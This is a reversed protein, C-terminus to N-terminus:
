TKSPFVPYCNVFLLYFEVSKASLQQEPKGDMIIGLERMNLEICNLLLCFSFCFFSSLPGSWSSKANLGACFLETRQRGRYTLVLQSLWHGVFLNCLCCNLLSLSGKVQCWHLSRHWFDSTAQFAHSSVSCSSGGGSHFGAAGFLDLPLCIWFLYSVAFEEGPTHTPFIMGKSHLLNM